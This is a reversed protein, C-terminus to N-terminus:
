AESIKKENNITVTVGNQILSLSQYGIRAKRLSIRVSQLVGELGERIAEEIKAEILLHAGGRLDLGLNMQKHPLWDPM